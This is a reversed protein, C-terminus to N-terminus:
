LQRVVVNKHEIIKISNNKHAYDGLNINNIGKYIVLKHITNGNCDIITVSTHLVDEVILKM